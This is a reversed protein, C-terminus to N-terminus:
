AAGQFMASEAARRATLGALEKGGAKSWRGFQKAAGAYDGANLLKLLTSSGLNTAGLNYIFSTLADYQNQKLPVKVLASLQPEFRAVEAQLFQEAEARTIKQGAKVGRTTGYGITWVGVSDQYAELRLGEYAKILDIGKQSIHM